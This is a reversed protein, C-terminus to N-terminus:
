ATPLTETLVTGLHGLSKHPAAKYPLPAALIRVTDSNLFHYFLAKNRIPGWEARSLGLGRLTPPKHKPFLWSATSPHWDQATM